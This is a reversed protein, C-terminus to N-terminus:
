SKSEGLGWFRAEHSVVERWLALVLKQDRLGRFDKAWEPRGEEELSFDMWAIAQNLDRIHEPIATDPLGDQMRAQYTAVAQREAISLIHNKFTGTWLKGRRDTFEFKFVWEEQDKPDSSPEQEEAKPPSKLEETTPVKFSPVIRVM